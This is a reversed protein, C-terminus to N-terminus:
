PSKSNETSQLECDLNALEKVKQVKKRNLNQIITELDYEQKKLKAEEIVLNTHKLKADIREESLRNSLEKYHTMIEGRSRFFGRKRLTRALEEVCEGKKIFESIIQNETESFVNKRYM